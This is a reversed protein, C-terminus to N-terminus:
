SPHRPGDADQSKFAWPVDTVSGWLAGTLFNGIRGLMLGLAVPIVLIDAIDYFHIKKLRCFVIGAVVAGILGGHFSLGGKWFFLIHLPNSLYFWPNYVFVYILRAGVLVAIIFWLFFDDVDKRSISLNREKVLYQVFFYAIIFGLVFIIGYWYVELGFLSFAVPDLNHYFVM